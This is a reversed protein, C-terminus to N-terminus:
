LKGNNYNNALQCAVEHLQHLSFQIRQNHTIDLFLRWVCRSHPIGAISQKDATNSKEYLQISKWRSNPAVLHAWLVTVQAFNDAFKSNAYPDPVSSDQRVVNRWESTGSTGRDVSHASEHIFMSVHMNPECYYSVDENSGADGCTRSTASIM